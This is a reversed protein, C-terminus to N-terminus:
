ARRKRPRGRKPHADIEPTLTYPAPAEGLELTFPSRVTVSGFAAGDQLDETLLLSCHQLQAAAVILADWWSLRFRTEIEHGRQLLLRDVPLPNWSMLAEIDEWADDAARPPQIKRTANVYYESLVQMSTRGAQARWAHDIWTHAAKQKAPEAAQRAYLFVNTDVFLM